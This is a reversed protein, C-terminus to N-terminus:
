GTIRGPANGGLPGASAAEREFVKVRAFLRDKDRRVADRETEAARCDEKAKDRRPQLDRQAAEAGIARVEWMGRQQQQQEVWDDVAGRPRDRAAWEAPTSTQPAKCPPAGTDAEPPPPGSGTAPRLPPPPTTRGRSTLSRLLGWRSWMRGVHVRMALWAVDVSDARQKEWRTVVARAIIGATTVTGEEGIGSVVTKVRWHRSVLWYAFMGVLEQGGPLNSGGRIVLPCPFSIRLYAQM